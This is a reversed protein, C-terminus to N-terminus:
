ILNKKYLLRAKSCVIDMSKVAINIVPGILIIFHRAIFEEMAFFMKIRNNRMAAVVKGIVLNENIPGELHFYADGRTYFLYNRERINKKILRHCVIKKDFGSYYAIIDGKKLENLPFKKVLFMDGTRYFPLMSYGSVKFFILKKENTKIDATIM